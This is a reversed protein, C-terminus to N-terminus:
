PMLFKNIFAWFQLGLLFIVIALGYTLNGTDSTNQFNTSTANCQFQVPDEGTQVCTSSATNFDPILIGTTYLTTTATPEEPPEPALADCEDYSTNSICLFTYEADTDNNWETEGGGQQLYQGGSLTTTYRAQTQPVSYVTHPGGSYNDWQVSGTTGEVSFVVYLTGTYSGGHVFQAGRAGTQGSDYIPLNGNWSAPGSGILGGTWDSDSGGNSGLFVVSAHVPSAILLVLIIVLIKKM